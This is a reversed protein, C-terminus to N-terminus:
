YHKSMISCELSIAFAFSSMGRAVQASVVCVELYSCLVCTLRDSVQLSDNLTCFYCPHVYAECRPEPDSNNGAKNTRDYLRHWGGTRLDLARLDDFMLDLHHGKGSWILLQQGKLRPSDSGEGLKLGSIVVAAASKRCTPPETSLFYRRAAYSYTLGFTGVAILLLAATTVLLVRGGRFRLVEGGQEGPSAPPSNTDNSGNQHGDNM